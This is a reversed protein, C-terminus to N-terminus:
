DKYMNFDFIMSERRMVIRTPSHLEEENILLPKQEEEDGRETICSCRVRFYRAVKIIAPLAIIVIFPIMSLIISISTVVIEM